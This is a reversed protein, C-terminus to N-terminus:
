RSVSATPTRPLLGSARRIGDKKMPTSVTAAVAAVEDGVYRVKDFALPSEDFPYVTPDGLGFRIGEVDKGVLVTKVGPLKKAKSADIHLIRAHPHPSRLIKGHLMMPLTVDVTYQAEGSVKESGDVRAIRKGLISYEKM